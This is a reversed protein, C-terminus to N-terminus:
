VGWVPTQDVDTGGYRGVRGVRAVAQLNHSGVTATLPRRLNQAEKRSREQNWRTKYRSVTPWTHSVHIPSLFLVSPIIYVRRDSLRLLFSLILTTPVHSWRKMWWEVMLAYEDRV